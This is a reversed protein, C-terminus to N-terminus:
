VDKGKLIKTVGALHDKRTKIYVQYAASKWQGLAMITADGICREAATTAARGWQPFQTRLLM